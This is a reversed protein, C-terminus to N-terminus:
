RVATFPRPRRLQRQCGISKHVEPDVEALATHLWKPTNTLYHAVPDDVARDLDWRELYPWESGSWWWLLTHRLARGLSGPVTQLTASGPLDRGLYPRIDV